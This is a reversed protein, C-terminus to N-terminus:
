GCWQYLKRPVCRDALQVHIELYWTNIIVYRFQAPLLCLGYLIVFVCINAVDSRSFGSVSFILPKFKTATFRVATRTVHAVHTLTGDITSLVSQCLGQIHQVYM